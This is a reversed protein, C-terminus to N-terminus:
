HVVTLEVVTTATATTAAWRGPPMPPPPPPSPPLCHHDCSPMRHRFRVASLLAVVL